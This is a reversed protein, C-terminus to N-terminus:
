WEGPSRPVSRALLGVWTALRRGLSRGDVGPGALGGARCRGGWHQGPSEASGRAAARSSLDASRLHTEKWTTRIQSTVKDQV